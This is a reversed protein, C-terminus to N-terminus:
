DNLNIKVTPKFLFRKGDFALTTSGERGANCKVVAVNALNDREGKEDRDRRIVLGINSKDELASTEKADVLSKFGSNKRAEKDFQAAMIGVLRNDELLNKFDELDQERNQATNLGKRESLKIKNFYDVLVVQLGSTDRLNQAHAIVQGMTWGPCHVYHIQGPWQGMNAGAEIVTQWEPSSLGGAQLRAVPIGTARQMRRDQMMEPELEFHYFAVSWGGRKLWSEACNELFATKGVGPEAILGVLTGATLFPTYEALNPWPWVLKPKDKDRERRELVSLYHDISQNLTMTHDDSALRRKIERLSAEAQSVMDGVNDGRKFAIKAVQSSHDILQRQLGYNKVINAYHEAHIATPTNSVLETLYAFGGIDAVAGMRELEDSVTVLDPPIKAGALRRFAEFILSHKVLYFDGPELFHLRTLIDSDILLSGLVSEEAEISHPPLGNLKDSM